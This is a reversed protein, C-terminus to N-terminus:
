MYLFCSEIADGTTNEQEAVIQIGAAVSHFATMKLTPYCFIRKRARQSVKDSQRYVRSSDAHSIFFYIWCKTKQLTVQFMEHTQIIEFGGCKCGDVPRHNFITSLFLKIRKSKPSKAALADEHGLSLM